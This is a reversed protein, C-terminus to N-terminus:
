ANVLARTGAEVELIRLTYRWRDCEILAVALEGQARTQQLELVEVINKQTQTMSDLTANRAAENSGLEKQGDPHKTTDNYENLIDNRAEVLDGRAEFLRQNISNLATINAAKSNLASNIGNLVDVSSPLNSMVFATYCM